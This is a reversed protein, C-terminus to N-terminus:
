GHGTMGMEIGSAGVKELFIQHLSPQVIEFRNITSGTGVIRQLLEQPDAGTALEIDFFRNHDDVRDVLSRDRLVAMLETSPADGLGLAVNRTGHAQKIERISGDLVKRGQAIICVSDCLREANDMLHTSFIITKGRQKLEVITDKLAQANIP